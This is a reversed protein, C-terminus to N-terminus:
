YETLESRAFMRLSEDETPPNVVYRVALAEARPYATARIHDAAREFDYDTRCFQVGPGLLLWYAGRPAAFPMGVSGANVVRRGAIIRDFQMHTHGCVVVSAEVAGFVPVLRSEATERTFCETDNRPTAHCFLTLGLGAIDLEYSSPWGTIAQRQDADLQDATWYIAERFAEPVESIDGAGLHAAVVRDGNGHIFRVPIELAMLCAMTERPMPGPLVDGGIVVLDVHAGRVEELVAQLAFLNGHIDYLAAVPMENELVQEVSKSNFPGLWTLPSFV